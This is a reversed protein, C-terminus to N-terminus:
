SADNELIKNHYVEKSTGLWQDVFVPRTKGHSCIRDWVMGRSHTEVTLFSPLTALLKKQGSETM